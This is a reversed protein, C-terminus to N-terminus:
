ELIVDSAKPTTSTPAPAAASAAPKASASPPPRPAAPASTSATKTTISPASTVPAPFSSAQVNATTNQPVDSATRSKEQPLPDQRRREDGNASAPTSAETTPTRTLVFATVGGAAGLACAGVVAVVIRRRRSARQEPRSDAVNSSAAGTTLRASVPQPTTPALMFPAAGSPVGSPGADLSPRFSAQPDSATTGAAQALADALEKASAFRRALDRECARVFWADISPSLRPNRESPRPIPGHCIAVSVAGITDGTFPLEGTMAEFVLVGLSWLDARHDITKQGLVQEPCMYFPTGIMAGTGTVRSAADAGGTSKAIGFDLVKVFLEGSGADTLFVNEPKIDRHVIGRQHAAALARAVQAVIAAVESPEITRREDLLHRLDYGDLMEMAIFPAGNTAVGHDIMHVVHPSRVQSAAAAERSFRALADPNRALEAAMFKVVVQTRLGLHEAVWVRGMGGAGLPRVLRLTPTVLAGERLEADRPTDGHVMWLSPVYM